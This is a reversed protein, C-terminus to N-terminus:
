SAVYNDIYNTKDWMSRKKKPYYVITRAIRTSLVAAKSLNALM